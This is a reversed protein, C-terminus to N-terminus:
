FLNIGMRFGIRFPLYIQSWYESKLRSNSFTYDKLKIEQKSISEEFKFQRYGIGCSMGIDFFFLGRSRSFGWNYCLDYSKVYPNLNKNKLTNGTTNDTIDTKISAFNLDAYRIEMGSYSGSYGYGAFGKKIHGRELFKLILSYEKGKYTNSASDKNPNMWAGFRFQDKYDNYQNYRFGIAFRILRFEAYLPIQHMPLKSNESLLLKIPATAISFDVSNEPKREDKVLKNEKGKNYDFTKPSSQKAKIKETAMKARETEGLIEYYTKLKEWETIGFSSTSSTKDIIKIAKRLHSLAMKKESGSTTKAQNYSSEAYIWGFEATKYNEAILDYQYTIILNGTLDIFGWKSNMQVPALDEDFPMADDYKFDIKTNAKKDIFGWKGNKSVPALGNSFSKANSYIMPIVVRGQRDIFGFSNIQQAWTISDTFSGTNDFQYNIIIKGNKDIFGWQEFKKVAALKNTFAQADEFQFDIVANGMENIYGWNGNLKAPAIGQTFKKADDFKAEIKLKGNGDTFGYKGGINTITWNSSEQGYLLSLFSNLILILITKKM